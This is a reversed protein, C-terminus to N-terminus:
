KKGITVKLTVEKKEEGKKRILTVKVEDKIICKSLEKYFGVMTFVENGDISQIVDGTRIEANFAPSDIKVDNVYVGVNIGIKKSIEANIDKGVIGFYPRVAKKVLDNIVPYLNDIGIVTNIDQNLGKKFKHSIVGIIEGKLNCIFGEGNANDKIDTNFLDIMYDTIYLSQEENSVIGQERSYMYGNPSGLALIPTGNQISFSEGFKAVEIKGLTSAPIKETSVSLVAIGTDSDSGYSEADITYKEDFTIRVKDVEEIRSKSVLILLADEYKAIVLGASVNTDEYPNDLVDVESKVGEVTVISNEVGKAVEGLLRYDEMFANLIVENPEPTPTVESNPEETEVVEPTKIPAQTSTPQPSPTASKQIMSNKDTGGFRKEFFPRSVCFIFSSVLGFIIAIIITCLVSCCLKRRKSRKKPIIHEQIFSYQAKDKNKEINNNNDNMQKTSM